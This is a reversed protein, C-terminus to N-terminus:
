KLFQDVNASTVVATGTDIIKQPPQKGNHLDNLIEISKRGMEYPRQGVLAQVSGDKVLKLEDNLTDFGVVKIKGALGKQKLIQGAPLVGWLGAAFIGKTEPHALLYDQIIRHAKAQDDDCAQVSAVKIPTGAIGDKFGRIRENLNFAGLGGTVILVDGGGSLVRKMEAGANKGGAYNDTGVYAIRKSQPADADFCIVPIKKAIARAIVSNVSDPANPAIAIGQVGRSILDNIMAVQKGADADTAGVWDPAPLKMKKAADNAGQRVIDFYPNNLAKPCLAFV